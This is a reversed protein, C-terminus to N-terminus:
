TAEEYLMVVEDGFTAVDPDRDVGALDRVIVTGIPVTEKEVLEAYQDLLGESAVIRVGQISTVDDRAVDMYWHGARANFRFSLDFFLGDLEVTMSYAFPDTRVPIKLTAM